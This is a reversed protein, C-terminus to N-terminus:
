EHFSQCLFDSFSDRYATATAPSEAALAQGFRQPLLLEPHVAAFVFGRHSLEGLSINQALSDRSGATLHNDVAAWATTGQNNKGVTATVTQRSLPRWKLLPLSIPM